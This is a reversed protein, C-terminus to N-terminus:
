QVVTITGQLGTNGPDNHDHFGCTRVTNLPGTQLTQGAGLNNAQNVPTCDTHAPHPNSSMIHERSDNNVFTVTGGQRITVSQPSVTGSASITITATTPAGGTGGGGDGNSPATPSDSGGCAMALAVGVAASLGLIGTTVRM